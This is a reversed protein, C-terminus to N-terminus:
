LVFILGPIIIFSNVSCSYMRMTNRVHLKFSYVMLKTSLFSVTVGVGDVVAIVAVEDIITVEDAVVAVDGVGVPM